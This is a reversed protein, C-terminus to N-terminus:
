FERDRVVARVVDVGLLSFASRSRKQKGRGVDYSVNSAPFAYELAKCMKM